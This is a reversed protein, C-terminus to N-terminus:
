LPKKSIKSFHRPYNKPTASIKSIHALTRSEDEGEDGRLFFAHIEVLKGGCLRVANGAEQIETETQKAKMPLFLGGKKVFPLCLETLAPLAAVARATVVDYHERHEATHALEEARAALATVNSLGLERATRQVYAIRKATSDLATITLDPRAIALPFTPFGAGCGVDLVTASTPIYPSVLLSDVYHKLIVAKEEKIATLNMSKNTELMIETLQFFLKAQEDTLPPQENQAFTKDCERRFEEFNMTNDEFQKVHFM